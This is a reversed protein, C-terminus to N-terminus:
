DGSVPRLRAKNGGRASILTSYAVCQAEKTLFCQLRKMIQEPVYRLGIVDFRSVIIVDVASQPPLGARGGDM